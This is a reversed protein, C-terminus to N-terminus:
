DANRQVAATVYQIYFFILKEELLDFMVVHM